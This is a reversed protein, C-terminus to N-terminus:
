TLTPVIPLSQWGSGGPRMAFADGV